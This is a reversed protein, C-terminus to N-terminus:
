GPEPHPEALCIDGDVKLVEPLCVEALCIYDEAIKERIHHFPQSFLKGLFELSPSLNYATVEFHWSPFRFLDDDGGM